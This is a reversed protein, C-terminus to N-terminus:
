RQAVVVREIGALDRHVALDGYGAGRWLASVAEAQGAGVEVAAWAVGRAATAAVLRRLLALGDPGAFLAAAPEHRVIEPALLARESDAVYPPNCLIADLPGTVADLLDGVFVEVDLALRAANERAVAVADPSSDSAVVALDPREHKVSLAVAGSGTGVDLVGAGRSLALAVEVLLETEPRPILVRPDVLLELERFHKGALIYALPEREIARRRVWERLPAVAAPPVALQPDAILAARDVGCARAVLLEADLRPSDVGAARLAVLASDLADRATTTALPV